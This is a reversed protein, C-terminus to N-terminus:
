SEPLIEPLFQKYKFQFTDRIWTWYIQRVCDHLHALDTCIEVIRQLLRSKEDASVATHGNAIDEDFLDVMFGLLYPSRHEQNYLNCCFENVPKFHMKWNERLLRFDSFM